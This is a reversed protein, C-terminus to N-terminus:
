VTDSATHGAEGAASTADGAPKVEPTVTVAPGGTGGSGDATGTAEAAAPKAFKAKFAAFEEPTWHDVGLLHELKAKTVAWEADLEEILKHAEAKQADNLHQVGAEIHAFLASVKDKFVKCEDIIFKVFM